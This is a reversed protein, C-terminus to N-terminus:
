SLQWVPFWSEEIQDVWTQLFKEIQDACASYVAETGGFPDSVDGNNHSLLHTRNAMEPWRQVIAQRHSRTMTLVLDAQMMLRDSIARSQHHVISLGRQKMVALAEPSAAGGPFASLGASVAVAPVAQGDVLQSAFRKTFMNRLLAEAMPSRCTNGTCVLLVTLQGLRTLASSDLVGPGVVSCTNGDIRLATAFGGFHTPGDDVILALENGALTEVQQRTCAAQGASDMLPAAIVPGPLLRLSHVIAQHAAVRQPLYSKDVIVAELVEAPLQHVVSSPACVPLELVLPGPWGRHVIRNAVLSLSPSYDQAEHASRLFVCPNRAQVRGPLQMLRQVSQPNLGSALVHYTTEAPVAVLKGEVLSQVTIHVIDRPDESNKWELIRPM